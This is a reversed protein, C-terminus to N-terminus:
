QVSVFKSYSYKRTRIMVQDGNRDNKLSTNGEITLFTDKNIQKYFIGVHDFNGNMDFDFFVIDGAKPALTIKKNDRFHKMATDCGAFGKLYGINGLPKGAMYYVYSVFIGCWPVGNLGFWKGYKTMNSNIPMETNGIEKLATQIIINEPLKVTEM